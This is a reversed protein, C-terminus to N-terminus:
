YRWCLAHVEGARVEGARVEGARVEGARVEGARVEGARVEGAQVEEAEARGEKEKGELDLGGERGDSGSRTVEGEGGEREEEEAPMGKQGHAETLCRDTAMGAVEFIRHRTLEQRHGNTRRYNKRRKKKFVIVKAGLAELSTSICSCESVAQFLFSTRAM